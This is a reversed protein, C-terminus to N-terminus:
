CKAEDPQEPPVWAWDQASGFFIYTLILLFQQSFDM